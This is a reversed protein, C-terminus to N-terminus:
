NNILDLIDKSTVTKKVIKLINKNKDLLYTGPVTHDDKNLKTRIYKNPDWLVFFNAEYKNLFNIIDQKNKDHSIIIYNVNESKTQAEKLANIEDICHPCWSTLFFLLTNKSNDITSIDESKVEQVISVKRQSLPVYNIKEQIIEKYTEKSTIKEKNKRLYLVNFGLFIIFIAILFSMYIIKFKSLKM